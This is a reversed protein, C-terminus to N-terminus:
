TNARHGLRRVGRGGKGQESCLQSSGPGPISIGSSARLPCESNQQNQEEAANRILAFMKQGKEGWLIGFQPPPFFHPTHWFATYKASSTCHSPLLKWLDQKKHLSYQGGRAGSGSLLKHGTQIYLHKHPM